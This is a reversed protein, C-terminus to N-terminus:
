HAFYATLQRRLDAAPLAIDLSLLAGSPHYRQIVERLDPPIDAEAGALAAAVQDALRGSGALVLLPRGTALNIHLDVAAITGGNILLTLAPQPTALTTALDAIWASESGWTQGPIFLFHSHHPELDHCPRGQCPSDAMASSSGLSSPETWDLVSADPPKVQGQPLVGVLPFTGGLRHRAQGMLRMVGADTGGDMVTIQREQALPAIVEQFVVQLRQQSDEAMLGAGGVIVLTPRPRELALRDLAQQSTHHPALWLGQASHGGSFTLTLPGLDVPEAM